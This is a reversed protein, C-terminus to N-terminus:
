GGLKTGIDKIHQIANSRDSDSGFEAWMLGKFGGKIYVRTPPTLWAKWMTDLFWQKASDFDGLSSLGGIIAPTNTLPHSPQNAKKLKDLEAEIINIKNTLDTHPHPYSRDQTSNDKVIEPQTIREDLEDIQQKLEDKVNQMTSQMSSKVENIEKTIPALQTQLLHAIGALTAPPAAHSPTTPEHTHDTKTTKNDPVLTPSALNYIQHEKNIDYQTPTNPLPRKSGPKPLPTIAMDAESADM